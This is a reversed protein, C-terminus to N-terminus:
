FRAFIARMINGMVAAFSTLAQPACDLIMLRSPLNPSRAMMCLPLMPKAPQALKTLGTQGMFLGRMRQALQALVHAFSACYSQDFVGVMIRKVLAPNSLPGLLNFITRVGLAARVPGVHQMAAHHRPAMLFTINAEALAREVLSIDCDLKIGLSSLVDAAGSKSSVAKNGHKAVPVGCGAVVFACATSINYTGFGDGGTGVIDMADESAQITLAKDRMVSAAAAIDDVQEGRMKLAILFAAMQAEGVDGDMIATFCAQIASPSPREGAILATLSSKVIDSM